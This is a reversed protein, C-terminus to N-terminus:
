FYYNLVYEQTRERGRNNNEYPEFLHINQIISFIISILYATILATYKNKIFIMALIFYVLFLLINNYKNHNLNLIIYFLLFLIIVAKQVNSYM